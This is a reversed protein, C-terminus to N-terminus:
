RSACGAGEAIPVWGDRPSAAELARLLAPRRLVVDAAAQAGVRALEIEAAALAFPNLGRGRSSGVALNARAEPERRAVMSALADPPFRRGSVAAIVRAGSALASAAFEPTARTWHWRPAHAHARMALAEQWRPELWPAHAVLVPVQAEEALALHRDLMRFARAGGRPLLLEGVAHVERAHVRARLQAWVDHWAREPEVEPSIAAAIFARIGAADLSAVVAEESVGEVGQASAYARPSMLLCARVGFHAMRRADADDFYPPAFYADFM